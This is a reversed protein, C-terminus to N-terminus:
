ISFGSGAFPMFTDAARNIFIHWFYLAWRLQKHFCVSRHATGSLFIGKNRAKTVLWILRSQHQNWFLRKRTGLSLTPFHQWSKGAQCVTCIGMKTYNISVQLSYTACIWRNLGTKLRPPEETVIAILSLLMDQASFSTFAHPVPACIIYPFCTAYKHWCIQGNGVRLALFQKENKM